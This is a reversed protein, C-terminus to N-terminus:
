FFFFIDVVVPFLSFLLWKEKLTVRSRKHFVTFPLIWIQNYSSGYTKLREYGLLIHRDTEDSEKYIRSIDDEEIIGLEFLCNRFNSHGALSYLELAKLLQKTWVQEFYNEWRNCHEKRSWETIKNYGTSRIIGCALKPRTLYLSEVNRVLKDTLSTAKSAKTNQYEASTRM